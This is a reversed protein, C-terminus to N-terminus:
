ISHTSGVGNHYFPSYSATIILQVIRNTRITLTLIECFVARLTLTIGGNRGTGVLLVVSLSEGPLEGSFDEVVGEDEKSSLIGEKILM